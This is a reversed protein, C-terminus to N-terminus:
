SSVESRAWAGWCHEPGCLRWNGDRHTHHLGCRRPTSLARHERLADMAADPGDYHAARTEGCGCSWGWAGTRLWITGADCTGLTVM